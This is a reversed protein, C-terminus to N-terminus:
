ESAKPNLPTADDALKGIAALKNFQAIKKMAESEAVTPTNTLNTHPITEWATVTRRTRAENNMKAYVNEDQNLVALKVMAQTLCYFNDRGYFLIAPLNTYYPDIGSYIRYMFAYYLLTPFQIDTSKMFFMIDKPLWREDKCGILRVHRNLNDRFSAAAEINFGFKQTASTSIAQDNTMPLTEFTIDPFAEIKIEPGIGVWNRPIAHSADEAGPINLYTEAKSFVWMIKQKLAKKTVEFVSENGIAGINAIDHQVTRMYSGFKQTGIFMDSTLEFQDELFAEGKLDRTIAYQKSMEDTMVAVYGINQNGGLNYEDNIYPSVAISGICSYETRLTEHIRMRTFRLGGRLNAADLIKASLKYAFCLTEHTTYDVNRHDTYKDPSWEGNNMASVAYDGTDLNVRGTILEEFTKKVPVKKSADGEKDELVESELIVSGSFIRLHQEGQTNGARLRVRKMKYIPALTAVDTNDVETKGKLDYGAKYWIETIHVDDNLPDHQLSYGSEIICNGKYGFKVLGEHGIFAEKGVFNNGAGNPDIVHPNDPSYKSCIEPLDFAGLLEGNRQGKPLLILKGTRPHRAYSLYYEFDFEPMDGNEIPHFMEMAKSRAFYGVLTFALCGNFNSRNSHIATADYGERGWAPIEGPQVGTKNQIARVSNSLTQAFVNGMHENGQFAHKKIHAIYQAKAKPNRMIESFGEDSFVSHGGSVYKEMVNELSLAFAHWPAANRKAYANNFSVLDEQSYSFADNFIDNSSSPAFITEVSLPVSSTKRNMSVPM